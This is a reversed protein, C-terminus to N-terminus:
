LCHNLLLRSKADGVVRTGLLEQADPHHTARPPTVGADAVDDDRGDLVGQGAGTDLLTVDHLRDDDAGDLLPTTGVAAVDAEVLVRGHEDLVVALRATRADEARHAALQAVLPEHLDNRESGLHESMFTFFPSSTTTMAPLSRPTLPLTMAASGTVLLTTTSPTLRTVLCVRTVVVWRPAFPPPMSCMSAGILALLTMTISPSPLAVRM